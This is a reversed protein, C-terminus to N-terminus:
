PTSGRMSAPHGPLALSSVKILADGDLRLVDMDGDVFNGVYLYRGDPSFALDHVGGVHGDPGPLRGGTAADLVTVHDDLMGGVALRKGDHSWAMATARRPADFAIRRVVKSTFTTRRGLMGAGNAREVTGEM